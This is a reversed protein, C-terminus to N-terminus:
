YDLGFKICGNEKMCPYDTYERTGCSNGVTYQQEDYYVPKVGCSSAL